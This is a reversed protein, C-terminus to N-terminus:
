SALTIRASTFPIRHPHNRIYDGIVGEVFYEGGGDSGHDTLMTYGDGGGAMYSDIVVRYSASDRLLTGDSLVISRVRAGPDSVPSYGFSFGAIQLFRGDFPPTGDVVLRSVANELMARVEFGTLVTLIATDQFPYVAVLDGFVIDYPPGHAYGPTDRRLTTDSPAYASPLSARISGANVVAMQAGQDRFRDLMADAVLDGLPTEQTRLADDDGVFVGNVVGVPADAAQPSIPAPDPSRNSSSPDAGADSTSESGSPADTTYIPCGGIAFSLGLACVALISPLM